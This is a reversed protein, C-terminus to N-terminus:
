GIELWVGDPHHVRHSTLVCIMVLLMNYCTGMQLSATPVVYVCFRRGVDGRKSRDEGDDWCMM